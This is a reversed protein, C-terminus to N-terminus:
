CSGTDTSTQSLGPLVGTAEDAGNNVCAPNSPWTRSTRCEALPSHHLVRAWRVGLSVVEHATRTICSHTRTCQSWKTHLTSSAATPAHASPSGGWLCTRLGAGAQKRPHGEAPHGGHHPGAEQGREGRKVDPLQRRSILHLRQLAGECPSCSTRVWGGAWVVGCPGSVTLTIPDCM